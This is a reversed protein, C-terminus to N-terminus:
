CHEGGGDIPVDLLESVTFVTNMQEMGQGMPLPPRPSCPKVSKIETTELLAVM